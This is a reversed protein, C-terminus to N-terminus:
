QLQSREEPARRKWRRCRPDRRCPCCAISLCDWLECCEGGRRILHILLSRVSLQAMQEADTTARVLMGWRWPTMM